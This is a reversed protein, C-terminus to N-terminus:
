RDIAMACMVQFGVQDAQPTWTLTKYYATSNFQIVSSQVMGSFSLTAIDVITVSSGCYNIAILRSTFTQGVRVPICSKDSLEYVDPPKM